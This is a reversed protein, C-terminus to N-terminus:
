ATSDVHDVKQAPTRVRVAAHLTFKSLLYLLCSSSSPGLCRPDSVPWIQDM